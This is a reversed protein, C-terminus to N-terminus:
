ARSNGGTGNAGTSGRAGMELAACARIMANCLIQNARNAGSIQQPLACYAFRMAGSAGARKSRFSAAIPEASMANGETNQAYTACFASMGEDEFCASRIFEDRYKRM